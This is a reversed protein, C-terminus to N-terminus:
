QLAVIKKHYDIVAHYKLLVDGGVIGDIPPMGAEQYVHNVGSLDILAFELKPIKFSGLHIKKLKVFESKTFSAGLGTTHHDTSKIKVKSLKKKVFESNLVSQSAGTDILLLVPHDELRGKIFIHSGSPPIKKRIIRIEMLQYLNGKSIIIDWNFLRFM